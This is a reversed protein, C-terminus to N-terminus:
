QIYHLILDVIAMIVFLATIPLVIATSWMIVAMIMDDTTKKRGNM